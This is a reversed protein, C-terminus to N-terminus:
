LSEGGEMERVKARLRARDENAKSIIQKFEPEDRLDQFAPYIEAMEHWSFQQSADFAESLFKLAKDKEGLVAYLIAQNLVAEWTNLFFESNDMLDELLIHALSDAKDKRGTVKYLGALNAYVSYCELQCDTNECNSDIFDLAEEYKDLFLYLGPIYKLAWCDRSAHYWDLAYELAKGNEGIYAYCYSITLSQNDPESIDLEQSKKLYALGKVVDGEKFCLEGLHSYPYPSCEPYLEILKEWNRIAEEAMGALTYCDAKVWYAYWFEPEFTLARDCYFAVSDVNRDKWSYVEGKGVMAAAFEADIALAKDYLRIAEDAHQVGSGGWFRFVEQRGRMFFDYAEIPPEHQYYMKRQEQPTIVAGLSAAIRRAIRSQMDLLSYTRFPLDYPEVWIQEDTRSDILKAWLRLTDNMLQGSCELIYAVNLEQGIAPINKDTGRYQEVSQRPKVKIDRINQMRNTIEEQLVNFLYDHESEPGDNRFPLVAISKPNLTPPVEKGKFVNILYSFVSIILVIGALVYLTYQLLRYRPIGKAAPLFVERAEQKEELLKSGQDGEIEKQRIRQIEGPPFGYLDHFCKNFYAPSGFGVRYAIESITATDKKLMEMARELRFERIYQSVNKGTLKQLKRYLHMRSMSMAKALGEVSFQENDINSQIIGDVKRLFEENRPFQVFDKDSLNHDAMAFWGPM